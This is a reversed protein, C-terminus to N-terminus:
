TVRECSVKRSSDRSWFARLLKPCATSHIQGCLKLTRERSQQNILAVSALALNVPPSPVACAVLSRARGSKWHQGCRQGRKDFKHSTSKSPQLLPATLPLVPDLAKGSLCFGSQLCAVQSVMTFVSDELICRSLHFFYCQQSPAEACVGPHSNDTWIGSCVSLHVPCWLHYIDSIFQLGMMVMILEPAPACRWLRNQGPPGHHPWVGAIVNAPAAFM